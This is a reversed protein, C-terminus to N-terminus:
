CDGGPRNEVEAMTTVKGRYRENTPQVFDKGQKVFRKSKSKKSM